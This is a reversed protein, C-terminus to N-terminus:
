YFERGVRVFRAAVELPVTSAGGLGQPAKREARSGLPLKAQGSREGSPTAPARRRGERIANENSHPARPRPAADVANHRAVSKESRKRARRGPKAAGPSTEPTDM